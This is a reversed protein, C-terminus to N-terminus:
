RGGPARRPAHRGSPKQRLFGNRRRRETEERLLRQVTQDRRKEALLSANKGLNGVVFLHQGVDDQKVTGGVVTHLTLVRTQGADAGILKDVADRVCADDIGGEGVGVNFTRAEVVRLAAGPVAGRLLFGRKRLHREM